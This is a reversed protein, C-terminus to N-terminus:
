FYIEENWGKAADEHNNRTSSGSHSLEYALLGLQHLARVDDTELNRYPHAREIDVAPFPDLTIGRLVEPQYVYDAYGSTMNALNKLSIRDADPLEPLFNNLKDELRVEKRDVLEMLMTSMYTFAMAGNRFHMAPTAPVGTM